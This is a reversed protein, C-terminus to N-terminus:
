LEVTIHIHLCDHIFLWWSDKTSCMQVGVSTETKCVKSLKWFFWRKGVLLQRNPKFGPECGLDEFILTLPPCSQTFLTFLCILLLHSGIQQM